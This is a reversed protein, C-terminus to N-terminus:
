RVLFSYFFYAIHRIYDGGYLILLFLEDLLQTKIIVKVLMLVTVFVLRVEDRLIYKAKVVFNNGPLEEDRAHDPRQDTSRHGDNEAKLQAERFLAESPQAGDEPFPDLDIGFRPHTRQRRLKIIRQYGHVPRDDDEENQRCPQATSEAVQENRQLQACPVHGGRQQVHQRIPEKEQGTHDHEIGQEKACPREGTPPDGIRRQTGQRLCGVPGTGTHRKPNQAQNEEDHRDTQATDIVDGRYQVHAGFAHAHPAHWQGDPRKEDRRDEGQQRERNQNGAEQQEHEVAAQV